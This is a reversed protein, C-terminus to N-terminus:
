WGTPMPRCASRSTPPRPDVSYRNRDFRVLCCKSAAIHTEHFGDFPGRYGILAPRGDAFVEAVSREKMEPHPERRSAEPM